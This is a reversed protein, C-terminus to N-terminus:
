GVREWRHNVVLQAGPDIPSGDAYPRLKLTLYRGDFSWDVKSAGCCREHFTFTDPTVTYTGQSGIQDPVISCKEWQTFQGNTLELRLHGGDSKLACADQAGLRLADAKTATAVYVGDPVLAKVTPSVTPEPAGCPQLTPAPSVQETITRITEIYARTDADAELETYVPQAAQRMAALESASANVVKGSGACFASADEGKPLVEVAHRVAEDAAHVLAERQARDLQGLAADTTFLVHMRPYLVINGTLVSGGLSAALGLSADTGDLTGDHLALDYATAGLHVPEAGLARLVADSANSTPTRVRAAKFDGLSALAKRIGVPHRLEGPFLALGIFGSPELGALMRHAVPDQAVKGMVQIDTILFPAQIAQLSKVGLTDFARSGVWGLDLQGARVQRALAQEFDTDGNTDGWRVDVKVSGHTLATLRQLFYEVTPTDPRGRWDTTGMTLTVTPSSGGAKDGVPDEVEGCGALALALVIGASVTAMRRYGM